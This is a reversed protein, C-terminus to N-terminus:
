DVVTINLTKKPIPSYILCAVCDPFPGYNRRFNFTEGVEIDTPYQCINNNGFVNNYTVGSPEHVWTIEILDKPFDEDIVEVVFNNCSALVIKGTYINNDTLEEETLEEEEITCSGLLLFILFIQQFKM